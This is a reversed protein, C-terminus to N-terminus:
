RVRLREAAPRHVKLRAAPACPSGVTVAPGALRRPGISRLDVMAPAVDGRTGGRHNTTPAQFTWRASDATVRPRRPSHGARGALHPVIRSVTTPRRLPSSRETM